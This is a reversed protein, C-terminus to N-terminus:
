LFGNPAGISVVPMPTPHLSQLTANAGGFTAGNCPKLGAITVACGKGLPAAVIDQNCSLLHAQWKCMHTAQSM